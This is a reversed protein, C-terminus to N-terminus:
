SKLKELLYLEGMIILAFLSSVTGVLGVLQFPNM